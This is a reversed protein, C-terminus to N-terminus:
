PVGREFQQSGSDKGPMVRTIEDSEYFEHVMDIVESPLSPGSKLSPLSLIGRKRTRKIEKSYLKVCRIRVSDEGVLEQAFGFFKCYSM